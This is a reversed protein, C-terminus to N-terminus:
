LSMDPKNDRQYSCWNGNEVLEERALVTLLEETQGRKVLQESMKGYFREMKRHDSFTRSLSLQGYYNAIFLTVASITGLFIKLGTRYLEVNTVHFVPAPLLGGCVLEFLVASLYLVISIILAAHVINESIRIDTLSREGAHEHYRRQDEAWCERIDHAEGAPSGATLACLATMIWATEEQQTWSLLRAAEIGTGAYRLYVQVRLCEALARYEIYRRHCDSGSAYRQCLWAAMLMIGCVLIMRIAQVEDYMLFAFTLIMSAAALLALVLRYRKAYKFSLNGATLSVSEMRGLKPDDAAQEPIRSKGPAPSGLAQRNFEDTKKLIDAITECDGPLHVTGAAEDCHDGRPTFVHIVGTNSRTRVPMGSSPYYSENLAFDVAEATGCAAETGSGGDWLALLVHCHTVVYIGAQRFLYGRDAGADPVPEAWPVAFVEEARTLHHALLEKAAPSFDKEFEEPLMPLAALLPMNLEESVDACLLDGGEALGSLMVFQSDPYKERLKELEAKVASRLPAEDEKRIARHGTVGIVVPITRNDANGHMGELFGM